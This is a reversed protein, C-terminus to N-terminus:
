FFEDPLGVITLEGRAVVAGTSDNQVVSITEKDFNLSKKSRAVDRKFKIFGLFNGKIEYDVPIKYYSVMDRQILEAAQDTVGEKLVPVPKKKELKSIVLGNKSAFKSLSQYLDEVEAKSHFLTSTKEFVPKIKEIRAKFQSIEENFQIIENEKNLKDDYIAKRDNVMPKLISYYIILFLIIAGLGIGFKILTKKDIAGSSLKGKLDSLSINKLDM